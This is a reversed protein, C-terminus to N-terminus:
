IYSAGGSQIAKRLRDLLGLYMFFAVLAVVVMALALLAALAPVSLAALYAVIRLVVTTAMLTLLLKAREALPIAGIFASLQKLFLLFTVQAALGALTGVTEITGSEEVFQTAISMCFSIIDLIISAVIFGKAGTEEPTALCMFKGVILMILGALAALGAVFIILM